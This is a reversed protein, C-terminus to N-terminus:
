SSTHAHTNKEENYKSVSLESTGREREKRASLSILDHAGLRMFFLCPECQTSPIMFVTRFVGEMECLSMSDEQSSASTERQVGSKM